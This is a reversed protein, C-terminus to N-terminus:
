RFRARLRHGNWILLGSLVLSPFVLAQVALEVSAIENLPSYLYVGLTTALVVHVLRQTSRSWIRGSSM